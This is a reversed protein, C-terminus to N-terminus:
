LNKKDQASSIRREGPRFLVGATRIVWSENRLLCKKVWVFLSLCVFLYIFVEACLVQCSVEIKKEHLTCTFEKTTVKVLKSTWKWVRVETRM